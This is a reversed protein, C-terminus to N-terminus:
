PLRLGKPSEWLRLKGKCAFPVALARPARLLWCWPGEVDPDHLLIDDPLDMEELCDYVAVTGIIAGVPLASLAPLVLADDEFGVEDEFAVPRGDTRFVESWSRVALRTAHIAIRGRYDTPWTRNEVRKVNALILHAWPQQVSLTLM